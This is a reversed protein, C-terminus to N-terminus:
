YTFYLYWFIELECKCIELECKCVAKNYIQKHEVEFM